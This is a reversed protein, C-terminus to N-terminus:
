IFHPTRATTMLHDVSQLVNIGVSFVLAILLSTLAVFIVTLVSILKNKNFANRMIKLYM